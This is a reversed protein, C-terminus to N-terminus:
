LARFCVVCGRAGHAVARGMDDSFTTVLTDVAEMAAVLRQGGACLLPPPPPPPTLQLPWRLTSARQVRRCDRQTHCAGGGGADHRRRVRVRLALACRPRCLPPAFQASSHGDFM